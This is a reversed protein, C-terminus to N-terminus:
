ARHRPTVQRFTLNIRPSRLTTEKPLQHLWNNQLTKGMILVSGNRLLMHYRDRGKDRKPRLQFKREAGLSLSAIVPNAGLEPEDDPRGSSPRRPLRNFFYRGGGTAATFCGLVHTLWVATPNKLPSKARAASVGLRGACLVLKVRAFPSAFACMRVM